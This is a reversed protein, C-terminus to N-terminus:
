NACHWAFAWASTSEHPRTSSDHLECETGVAEPAFLLEEPQMLLLQIGKGDMEEKHKETVQELEATSIPAFCSLLMYVLIRLEPYMYNGPKKLCFVGKEM